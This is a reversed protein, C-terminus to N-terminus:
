SLYEIVAGGDGGRGGETYESGSRIGAYGGGGIGPFDGNFCAGEGLISSGGIDFTISISGSLNVLRKARPFGGAFSLDGGESYARSGNGVEGGQALLLRVGGLTIETDGGKEANIPKGEGDLYLGRGGAGVSIKLVDGKKLSKFSIAGAGGGGGCPHYYNTLSKGGGGGAGVATIKYVGDREITFTHEGATLFFASRISASTLFASIEPSFKDPTVSGDPIIGNVISDVKGNLNELKEQVSDGALTDIASSGIRDAGSALADTSALEEIMVSNIYNKIDSGAKDFVSKLDNPTYGEEINPRDPLKSVNEVDLTLKTIKM